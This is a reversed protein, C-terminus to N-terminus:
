GLPISLCRHDVRVGRRSRLDSGLHIGTLGGAGRAGTDSPAHIDVLRRLDRLSASLAPARFFPARAAPMTSDLNCPPDDSTEAARAKKNYIDADWDVLM